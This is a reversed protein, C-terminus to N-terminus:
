TQTRFVGTMEELENSLQSLGGSANDTKMAIQQVENALNISSVSETIRALDDDAQGALERSEAVRELGKRYAIGMNQHERLFEQLLAKSQDDTLKELLQAGNSQITSEHQEFRGWYKDLQAPDHGRILVNKWEQVQTKFDLAMRVIQRENNIETTTIHHIDQMSSYTSYFGSSVVLLLVVIIVTLLTLLKNKLSTTLSSM